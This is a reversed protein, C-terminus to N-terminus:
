YNGVACHFVEYLQLAKKGDDPLSARYKLCDQQDESSGEFAITTYFKKLDKGDLELKYEHNDYGFAMDCLSASDEFLAQRAKKESPTNDDHNKGPMKLPDDEYKVDKCKEALAYNTQGFLASGSAALIVFTALLAVKLNGLM